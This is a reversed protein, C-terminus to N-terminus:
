ERLYRSNIDSLYLLLEFLYLMLSSYDIIYSIYEEGSVLESLETQSDRVEFKFEFDLEILCSFPIPALCKNLDM